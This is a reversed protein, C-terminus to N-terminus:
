TSEGYQITRIETSCFEEIRCSIFLLSLIVWSTKGDKYNLLVNSVSANRNLHITSKRAMLKIDRLFLCNLRLVHAVYMFDVHDATFNHSVPVRFSPTRHVSWQHRRKAVEFGTNCIDCKPHDAYRSLVGTKAEPNSDYM